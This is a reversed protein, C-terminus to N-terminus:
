CVEIRYRIVNKVSRMHLGLINAITCYDYGNRYLCIIQEKLISKGKKSFDSLSREKFHTKPIKKEQLKVSQAEHSDAPAGVFSGFKDECARILRVLERFYKRNEKKHESITKQYDDIKQQLTKTM